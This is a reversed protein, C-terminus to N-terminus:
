HTRQTIWGVLPEQVIVRNGRKGYIYIYAGKPLRGVWESRLSPGSRLIIGGDRIVEFWGIPLDSTDMDEQQLEHLSELFRDEEEDDDTRISISDGYLRATSNRSSNSIKRGIDGTKSISKPGM